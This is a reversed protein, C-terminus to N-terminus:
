FGPPAPQPPGEPPKVAGASFGGQTALGVVDIEAVRANSANQLGPLYEDWLEADIDPTVVLARAHTPRGLRQAAGRWDTRGYQLDAAVSVVIALSLCCLAAGAGLGLRGAAFGA